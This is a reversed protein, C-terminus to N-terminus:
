INISQLDISTFVLTAAIIMLTCFLIQVYFIHLLTFAIEFTYCVVPPETTTESSDVASADINLTM